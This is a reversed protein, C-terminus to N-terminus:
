LVRGDHITKFNPFTFENFVLFDLLQDPQIEPGFYEPRDFTILDAQYGKQISGTKFGLSRAGGSFVKECLFRGTSKSKNCLISRRRHLLRQSYELTRIESLPNLAVHSDSGIAIQGDNKLLFQEGEFIGDGLNAETTPCVCITADSRAVMECEEPTMHTAHVLCWTSDVDVNDLLYKVPTTGLSEICDDVEKQQEAIHIHIPGDPILKKFAGTIRRITEIDVARLSHVSMGFNVNFRSGWRDILKEVLKLYHEDSLYFRRQGGRLEGGEFGSQQYLVPLMCIAISTDLAAQFLADAMESLFEYPQGNPACHVYHFEGVSTYGAALMNRYLKKAIEYNLDPTLKEVFTYMQNRWTWFSDDPDTRYETLGVFARQFAHSHANAFAPIAVDAFPEGGIPQLDSKVERITGNEGVEVVVNDAWGEPLLVKKFFLEM